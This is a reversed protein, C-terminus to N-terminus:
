HKVLKILGPLNNFHLRQYSQNVVDFKEYFKRISNIDSGEFDFLLKSGAFEKFIEDFLFHNAETKRGAGTTSNMLNYLRQKDKLLLAVALLENNASVVKRVATNNQTHLYNCLKEFNEYDKLSINKLRKSYLEKYMNIADVYNGSSYIFSQKSAKKLNKLLDENYHKSLNYYNLSIDKVFNDCLKAGAVNNQFNFNYDGYKCFKFLETLLLETYNNDSTTFFGLQQILPVDYCYKIGLKRRWPIPMVAEYNNIVIGTWNDAMHDLYYTYAYIMPSSSNQICSNWKQQDINHSPIINIQPASM